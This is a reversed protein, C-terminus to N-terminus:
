SKGGIWFDDNDGGFELLRLLPLGAVGRFGLDSRAAAHAVTDSGYGIVYEDFQIEPIAVRLWGGELQGFNTLMGTAGALRLNLLPSEAIIVSCPSGTDAILEFTVANGGPGVLQVRM